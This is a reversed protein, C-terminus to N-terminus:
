GRRWCVELKSSEVDLGDSGSKSRRNVRLMYGAAAYQGNGRRGRVVGSWCGELGHSGQEGGDGVPNRPEEALRGLGDNSRHAQMIPTQRRAEANVGSRFEGIARRMAYRGRRPDCGGILGAVLREDVVRVKEVHRAEFIREALAEAEADDESSSTADLRPWCRSM